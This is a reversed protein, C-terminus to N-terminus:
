PRGQAFARNIKGVLGPLANHSTYDYTINIGPWLHTRYDTYISLINEYVGPMHANRGQKRVTDQLVHFPPLCVIYIAHNAATRRHLTRWRTQHWEPSPYGRRDGSRYRHYILESVLPHRNYISPPQSGMTLVDHEVWQALNDVPGGLSTSAREHLTHGTYTGRLASILTDKGGGDPGEM